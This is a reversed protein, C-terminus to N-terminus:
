IESLVECESIQYDQDKLTEICCYIDCNRSIEIGEFRSIKISSLEIYLGM